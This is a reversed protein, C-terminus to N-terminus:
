ADQVAVQSWGLRYLGWAVFNVLVFKIGIPTLFPLFGNEIAVGWTMGGGIKLWSVGMMFILIQGVFIAVANRVLSFDNGESLWGITIAAMEFGALYGMTPGTFHDMGSTGGQFFPLGSIGLLLYIGVSIGAKWRGLVLGSLMVFFDSWVLSVPGIAVEINAGGAMLATFLLIPILQRMLFM